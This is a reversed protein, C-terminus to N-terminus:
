SHTLRKSLIKVLFTASETKLRTLVFICGLHNSLYEGKEKQQLYLYVHYNWSEM